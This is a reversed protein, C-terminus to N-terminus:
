PNGSTGPELFKLMWQDNFGGDMTIVGFLGEPRENIHTEGYAGMTWWATGSLASGHGAPQHTHNLDIVGGGTSGTYGVQIYEADQTGGAAYRSANWELIAGKATADYSGSIASDDDDISLIVMRGRGKVYHMSSGGHDSAGDGPVEMYYWLNACVDGDKDNGNGVKSYGGSDDGTLRFFRVNAADTSGVFHFVATAEPYYQAFVGEYGGKTGSPLHYHALESDLSLAVRDAVSGTGTHKVVRIKGASSSTNYMLVTREINGDYVSLSIKDYFSNLFEVATGATLEGNSNCYYAKVFSKQSTEENWTFTYVDYTPNYSMFNSNLSRSQGSTGDAVSVQYITSTSSDTETFDGSAFDYPNTSSQKAGVNATGIWPEYYSGDWAEFGFVLRSKTADYFAINFITTGGSHYVYPTGRYYTSATKIIADMTGYYSNGGDGYVHIHQDTSPDYTTYSGVGREDDYVRKTDTVSGIETLSYAASFSGTFEENNLNKLNGDTIGNLNKISAIAIGNVTKVENAM